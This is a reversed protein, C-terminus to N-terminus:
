VQFREECLSNILGRAREISPGHREDGCPSQVHEGAGAEVQADASDDGERVVWPGL